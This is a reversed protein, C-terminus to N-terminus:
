SIWRQKGHSAPNRKDRFVSRRGDQQHQQSLGAKARGISGCVLKEEVTVIVFIQSLQTHPLSLLSAIDSSLCCSPHLHFSCYRAAKQPLSM